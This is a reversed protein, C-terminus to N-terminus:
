LDKVGCAPPEEAMGRWARVLRAVAEPCVEGPTTAAVASAAHIERIGIAALHSVDGIRLQGGALIQTSRSAEALQRLGLISRADSVATAGRGGSTLIRDVGLGELVRFAELPDSAADFAKHFTVSLPAAEALLAELIPVDIRGDRALCGIVVGKAGLSKCRRIDQRMVEVETPSYCFDGGRPRILVNVPIRLRKCALGITGERPTVGGVALDECLEIRDADGAEAALASAVSTVCIEVIKGTRNAM